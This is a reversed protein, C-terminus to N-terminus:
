ASTSFQFTEMLSHAISCNCPFILSQVQRSQIFINRNKLKWQVITLISSYKRIEKKISAFCGATKTGPLSFLCSNSLLIGWLGSKLLMNCNLFFFGFGWVRLGHKYCICSWNPIALHFEKLTAIFAMFNITLWTQCKHKFQCCPIQVFTKSLLWISKYNFFNCLVAKCPSTRHVCSTYILSFIWFSSTLVWSIGM